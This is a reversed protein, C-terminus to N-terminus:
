SIQQEYIACVTDKLDLLVALEVSLHYKKLKM